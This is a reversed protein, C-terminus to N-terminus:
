DQRVGLVLSKALRLGGIRAQSQTRRRERWVQPVGKLADFKAAWLERGLGRFSFYVLAVLNMMLHPLLCAWFLCGPMNKVFCWVLNRHGHYVSFRSHRGGSSASGVHLARAGPVLLCRWGQLRLRFGLDVDEMYCFFSEDFGGVATIADCRYLAAAACPSFVEREALVFSDLPEGYGRRWAVGSCHYADGAGDLLHPANAQLLVSAFSGADPHAQAGALMQALWDPALFADPNVLAVLDCDACLKFGHNNAAAFGRNEGLCELLFEGPGVWPPLSSIGESGNDVVIIRDFPRTQAALAALSRVLLDLSNWSVVVAAVKM